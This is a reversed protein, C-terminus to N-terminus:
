ADSDPPVSGSAVTVPSRDRISKKHGWYIPLAVLACGLGVLNLWTIDLFIGTLILIWSAIGFYLPILTEKSRQIVAAARRKIMHDWEGRLDEPIKDRVELAAKLQQQPNSAIRWAVAASTLGVAVTAAPAVWSFDTM